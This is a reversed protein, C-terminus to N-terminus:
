KSTNKKKKIKIWRTKDQEKKVRKGEQIDKERGEYYGEKAVPHHLYYYYYFNSLRVISLQVDVATESTHSKGYM